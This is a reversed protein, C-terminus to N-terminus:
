LFLLAFIFCLYNERSNYETKKQEFHDAGIQLTILFEVMNSYLNYPGLALESYTKACFDCLIM